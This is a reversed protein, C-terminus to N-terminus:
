RAQGAPEGGRRVLEALRLLFEKNSLPREGPSQGLLAAYEAAGKEHLRAILQRINREVNAYKTRKQRQVEAYAEKLLADRGLEALVGAAAAAYDLGLGEAAGMRRLYWRAAAQARSEEEPRDPFFCMHIWDVLASYNVPKIIYHSAGLSLACQVTADDRVGSLVLVRPRRAPPDERRTRLLEIGGMRPMVLDLLLLDPEKRRLQDLGAVGDRAVGIVEMGEIGDLFSELLLGTSEDDEVILIRIPEM